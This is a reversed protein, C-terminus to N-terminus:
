STRTVEIVTDDNQCVGDAEDALKRAEDPCDAEVEIVETYQMVRKFTYTGM